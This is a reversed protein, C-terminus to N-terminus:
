EQVQALLLRAFLEVMLWDLLGPVEWAAKQRAELGLYCKAAIIPMQSYSM